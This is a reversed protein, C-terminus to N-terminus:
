PGLADIVAADVGADVPAPDCPDDGLSHAGSYICSAVACRASASTIQPWAWCTADGPACRALVRNSPYDVDIQASRLVDTGLIGDVEAEDPRLETRLSQLVPSEDPVVLVDIPTAPRLDLVSPAACFASTCPCELEGTCDAEARKNAWVDRCPGRADTGRNAVLSLSGITEAVGEIRGSPLMVWNTPPPEPPATPPLGQSARWREYASRGLITRGVGTSLVLLLDAGTPGPDQQGRVRPTADACAALAVRRGAFPIEAGDIVLTGGGRYPTQFVADCVALRASDEGAIDPLIYIDGTPFDFRVADGALSDAGIIAGIPAVAAEDGVSCVAEEQACPHLEFVTAPLQARAIFAPGDPVRSEAKVTLLESRRRVPVGPGPDVVTIPSLVDLSAPVLQGGRDIQVLVAGSASQAHIPFPDGSFPNESCGGIAIVGAAALSLTLRPV